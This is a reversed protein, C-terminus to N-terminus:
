GKAWWAIAHKCRQAASSAHHRPRQLPRRPQQSEHLPRGRAGNLGRRSWGCSAIAMCRAAKRGRRRAFITQRKDASATPSPMTQQAFPFRLRSWCIVLTALIAVPPLAPVSYVVVPRTNKFHFRYERRFLVPPRNSTVPYTPCPSSIPMPCISISGAAETAFASPLASSIAASATAEPIRFATGSISRWTLNLDELRRSRQPTM